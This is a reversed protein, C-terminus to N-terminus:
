PHPSGARAPESVGVSAVAEVEVLTEPSALSAVGVGTVAPRSTGLFGTLLPALAELHESFEGRIYIRIQLLDNVSAGAETLVIKLNALVAEFQAGVTDGTVAHQKDWAVQGSVFLLNGSPAVVGQSMGFVSGDYLQQPNILHKAM